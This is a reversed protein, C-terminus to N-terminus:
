SRECLMWMVVGCTLMGNSVSNMASCSPPSTNLWLLCFFGGRRLSCSCCVAGSLLIYGPTLTWIFLQALHKAEGHAGLLDLLWPSTIAIAATVETLNLLSLFFLDALDVLFMAMLGLAGTLTMVVVHRMISGTVFRPSETM